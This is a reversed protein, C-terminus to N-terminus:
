EDFLYWFTSFLPSHLRSIPLSVGEPLLSKAFVDFKSKGPAFVSISRCQRLFAFTASLRALPSFDVPIYLQYNEEIEKTGPFLSLTHGDDGMGVIAFDIFNYKSLYDAICNHYRSASQVLSLSTDPFLVSAPSYNIRSLFHEKIMRQNSQLDDADVYREDGLFFICNDWDTITQALQHYLPIPSRGGSLVLAYPRGMEKAENIGRAIKSVLQEILFFPEGKIINM